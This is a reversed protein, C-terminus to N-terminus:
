DIHEDLAENIASEIKPALYATMMGFKVQVKILNDAPKVVARIGTPHQYTYHDGSLKSSGGFKAELRQLLGETASRCQQHDLSHSRSIKLEKM